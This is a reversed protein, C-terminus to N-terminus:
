ALLKRKAAAFEEDTLHGVTKLLALRAIEASIEPLAPMPAHVVRVAGDAEIYQPPAILEVQRPDRFRQSIRILLLVFGVGVVFEGAVIYNEYNVDFEPSATLWLSLWIAGILILCIPVGIGGPRAPKSEDDSGNRGAM